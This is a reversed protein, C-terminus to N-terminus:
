HFDDACQFWEIRLNVIEVFLLIHFTSLFFPDTLSGILKVEFSSKKSEIM